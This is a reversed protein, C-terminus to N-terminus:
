KTPEDDYQYLAQNQTAYPVFSVPSVIPTLQVVSSPTAVPVPAAHTQPGYTMIPSFVRGYQDVSTYVPLGMPMGNGVVQYPGQAPMVMTPASQQAMPYPGAMPQRAPIRAREVGDGAFASSVAKNKNSRKM